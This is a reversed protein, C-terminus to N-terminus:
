EVGRCERTMPEWERGSQDQLLESMTPFCHRLTRRRQDSAFCSDPEPMWGLDQATEKIEDRQWTHLADGPRALCFEFDYPNGFEDLSWFLEEIDAAVVMGIEWVGLQTASDRIRRFLYVEM